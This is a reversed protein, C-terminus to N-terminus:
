FWWERRRCRYREISAPCSIRRDSGSSAPGNELRVVMERTFDLRTRDPEGQGFPDLCHGQRDGDVRADTEGGTCPTPGECSGLRLTPGSVCHRLSSPLLVAKGSFRTGPSRLHLVPSCTDLAAITPWSNPVAHRVM